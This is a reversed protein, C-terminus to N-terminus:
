ASCASFAALSSRKSSHRFSTFISFFFYIPAADAVIAPEESEMADNPDNAIAAPYPVHAASPIRVRDLATESKKIFAVGIHKKKLMKVEKRCEELLLENAAKKALAEAQRAQRYPRNGEMIQFWRWIAEPLVMIIEMPSHSAGVLLQSMPDPTVQVRKRWLVKKTAAIM